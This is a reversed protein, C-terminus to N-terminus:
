VFIEFKTYIEIFRREWIIQTHVVTQHVVGPQISITMERPQAPPLMPLHQLQSGM